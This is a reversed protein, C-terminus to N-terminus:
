GQAGTEEQAISHPAQEWGTEAPLEAALLEDRSPGRPPTSSTELGTRAGTEQSSKPGVGYSM